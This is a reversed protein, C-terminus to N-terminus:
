YRTAPRAVASSAYNLLVRRLPLDSTRRLSNGPSTGDRRRGRRYSEARPSARRSGAKCSNKGSKSALAQPPTPAGLFVGASMMPFSLLSILAASPSGRILDRISSRPEETAGADGASNPFSMASSVSLHALTTRAALMLASHDARDRWINRLAREACPDSAIRDVITDWRPPPSRIMLDSERAKRRGKMFVTPSIANPITAHRPLSAASLSIVCSYGVQRPFDFPTVISIILQM